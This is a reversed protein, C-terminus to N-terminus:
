STFFRQTLLLGLVTAADQIEGYIAKDLAEKFSIEVVEINEDLDRPKPNSIPTLEKASFFIRKITTWSPSVFVKALEELKGARYGTEEELERRAATAASEGKEIKGSPLELLTEGVGRRFQEVLIVKNESTQPVIIVEDPREAIDAEFPKGSALEVTLRHLNLDKGKFLVESKLIKEKTVKPM